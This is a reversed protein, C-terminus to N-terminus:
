DYKIGRKWIENVLEIRSSTGRNSTLGLTHRIYNIRKDLQRDSLQRELCISRNTQANCILRLIILYQDALGLDSVGRRFITEDM